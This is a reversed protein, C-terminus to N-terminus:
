FPRQQHQWLVYQEPRLPFMTWTDPESKPLCYFSLRHSNQCCFGFFCNLLHLCVVVCLKFHLYPLVSAPTSMCCKSCLNNVARREAVPKSLQHGAPTPQAWAFRHQLQQVNSTQLQKDTECYLVHDIFGLDTGPKDQNWMRPCCVSARRYRQCGATWVVTEVLDIFNNDNNFRFVCGTLIM